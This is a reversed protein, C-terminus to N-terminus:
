GGAEAILPALRAATGAPVTSKGVVISGPVLTEALEGFAADVFSVDAAYEGKRQPTGVCVFHLDAFDTAEHVKTTFQLRGSALHKGLLEPLEPEFFPVDGRALREVKTEDVDVGVVEHGFEAMAAAHTAGLYGTGIVSIRV